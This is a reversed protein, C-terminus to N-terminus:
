YYRDADGWNWNPGSGGYGGGHNGYHTQPVDDGNWNVGWKPINDGGSNRGGAPIEPRPIMGGGMNGERGPAMGGGPFTGAGGNGGGTRGGNNGTGEPAIGGDGFGSHGTNPIGVGPVTGGGGQGIGPIDGNGVGHSTGVPSVDVKPENGKQGDGVNNDGIHISDCAGIGVGVCKKTGDKGDQGNNGSGDNKESHQQGSNELQHDQAHSDDVAPSSEAGGDQHNKGKHHKHKDQRHGNQGGPNGGERDDPEDSQVRNGGNNNNDGVHIPDCVSIGVGVCNPANFTPRFDVVPRGEHPEKKWEDIKKGVKDLVRELDDIVGEEAAEHNVIPAGYATALIATVITAHLQM